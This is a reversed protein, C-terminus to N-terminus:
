LKEGLVGPLKRGGKVTIKLFEGGRRFVRADAAGLELQNGGEPVDRVLVQELLKERQDAPIDAPIGLEAPQQQTPLDARGFVPIQQRTFIGKHQIGFLREREIVPLIALPIEAGQLGQQFLIRLAAPLNRHQEGGDVLAAFLLPFVTLLEFRECLRHFGCKIVGQLISFLLFCLFDQGSVLLEVPVIGLQSHHPNHHNLRM